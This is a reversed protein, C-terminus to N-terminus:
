SSNWGYVIIFNFKSSVYSILCLNNMEKEQQTIISKIFSIVQMLAAVVELALDAQDVIAVLVVLVVQVVLFMQAVLVLQVVISLPDVEVTDQLHLIFWDQAVRVEPM